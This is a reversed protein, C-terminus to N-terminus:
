LELRDFLDIINGNIWGTERRITDIIRDTDVKEEIMEEEYLSKGKNRTVKAEIEKKLKAFYYSLFTVFQKIIIGDEKSLALINPGITADEQAIRIANQLLDVETLAASVDKENLSNSLFDKAVNPLNHAEDIVVIMDSYDTHSFKVFIRSIGPHFVWLYNCSIVDAYKVLELTLFYPCYHMSHATEIIYDEDLIDTSQVMEECISDLLGNDKSGKMAGYYGCADNERLDQCVKNLSKADLEEGEILRLSCLNVKGKLAIVVIRKGCSNRIKQMERIIQDTQTHTRNCYIIKKNNNLAIPLVASLCTITKGFGNPANVILHGGNGLCTFIDNILEEQHDRYEPYPFFQSPFYVHSSVSQVLEEDLYLSPVKYGCLECYIGNDEIVMEEGCVPCLESTDSLSEDNIPWDLCDGRM